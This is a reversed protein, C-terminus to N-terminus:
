SVRLFFTTGLILPPVHYDGVHHGDSGVLSDSPILLNDVLHSFLTM